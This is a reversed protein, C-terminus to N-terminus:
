AALCDKMGGFYATKCKFCQYYALKFMAFKQLNNYFIDNPDKLRADKDLNEFKAREVAKKEVEAEIKESEVIEKHLEPCDPASIRAKCGPCDLYGFVIRPGPWRRRVKSM